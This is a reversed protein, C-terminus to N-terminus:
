GIPTNSTAALQYKAASLPGRVSATASDNSFDIRDVTSLGSGGGGFWGYNSNAAAALWNRGVSLPGRVSATSSDNSFDIRDVTAVIGLGTTGGGFWGYNSNGTAALDIIASSLPGRVSVSPSDNSFDIRDVTSTSPTSPPALLQGGGFWGYNSNGTATLSNKSLSLPGRVSATSSDNSFDIRDVRNRRGSGTTYGGGFWGYNSNGTAAFSYRGASLPGRVSATSSDNSFDIRDVTSFSAPTAPNSGGGFWGYNSNGTAASGDRALSLVGRVSATSSDNSFDIRDVSSLRVVPSASRGVGFWGYNGAKQLRISSSRAQGSTATPNERTTFSGRVLATSSDNSFDIRDVQSTSPINPGCGFWGYNSNGTAASQFIARSLPGRVSATASDNSFDIRDVSSYYNPGSIGGGFWGYNSNATAALYGRGSSLPGRPSATSFDNSFDIRNVTTEPPNNGGGFWGYNSNGTAAFRYRGGSLSGRVSATSSDNSFDIRDVTATAGPASGGGFWGYNSNGTAQLNFRALSLPGRVSVTPSDNSFDIRDVTSVLPHPFGPGTGGGFWGYNSNGTAALRYKVLSLSGRVLATSSDNSFDIREVTSLFPGNAGGGFWGHTNTISWATATNGVTKTDITTGAAGVSVGDITVPNSKLIFVDGLGFADGAVISM